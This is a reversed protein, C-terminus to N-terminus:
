TPGLHNTAFQSEYGDETLRFPVAMIGANNVVVDIHRVDTWEHLVKEAARRVQALSALNLELTRTAVKVDPNEAHISKATQELKAADRGALILLAPSAKAIARVFAEGLSNPSPGTTLIVKGKIQSAIDPDAVLQSARTEATFSRPAM